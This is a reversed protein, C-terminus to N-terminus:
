LGGRGTVPIAIKVLLYSSIGAQDHQSDADLNAKRHTGNKRNLLNLDVLM